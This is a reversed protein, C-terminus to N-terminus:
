APISACLKKVYLIKPKINNVKVVNNYLCAIGLCYKSISVPAISHELMLITFPSKSCREQKVEAIVLRPFSEGKSDAQFDLSLDITLREKLNKQVLTIRQYRVQLTEKLAFAELGTMSKLLEASEGEINQMLEHLMVRHKITRNKNSKFKIEFFSLGSDVYERFRVKNRNLKGNHHQLYMKLDPTDFYRTNYSCHRKGKISLVRYDTKLSQLIQPLRSFHFAYKSDMRNLLKVRDMGELSITEFGELIELINNVKAIL